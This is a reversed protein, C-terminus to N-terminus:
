VAIDETAGIADMLTKADVQAALIKVITMVIMTKQVIVVGMIAM